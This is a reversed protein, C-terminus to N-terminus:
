STARDKTFDLTPLNIGTPLARQLDSNGADEDACFQKEQLIGKRRTEWDSKKVCKELEVAIEHSSIRPFIQHDPPISLLEEEDQNLEINDYTIINKENLNAVGIDYQDLAADGVLVGDTAEPEKEHKLKKIRNEFKVQHKKKLYEWEYKSESMVLEDFMDRVVTKRKVTVDLIMKSKNMSKRVEALTKSADDLKALMIMKEIRKQTKQVIDSSKMGKTASKAVVKVDNFVIGSKIYRDVLNRTCTPKAHTIVKVLYVRM